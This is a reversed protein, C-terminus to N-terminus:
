PAQNLEPDVTFDKHCLFTCTICFPQLAQPWYSDDNLLDVRSVNIQFKENVVLVKNSRYKVKLHVDSALSGL